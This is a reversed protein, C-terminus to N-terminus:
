PTTTRDSFWARILTFDGQDSYHAHPTIETLYLATTRSAIKVIKDGREPTYGLATLDKQLLIIYGQQSDGVGAQGGQPYNAPSTEGVGWQVQAQLPFSAARVINNVPERRLHDQPSAVKNTKQIQITIPNLLRPQM